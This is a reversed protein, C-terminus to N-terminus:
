STWALPVGEDYRRGAHEVFRELVGLNAVSAAQLSQWVANTDSRRIVFAASELTASAAQELPLVQQRGFLGTVTIGVGRQLSVKKGFALPAGGDFAPKLQAFLREDLSPVLQKVLEKYGKVNSTLTLKGGSKSFLWVANPVLEKPKMARVVLRAVLVGILGAGAGAALAPDVIQLQYSALDNWAIRKRGFRGSREIGHQYLRVRSASLIFLTLACLGLTLVGILVLWLAADQSQSAAAAGIAMFIVILFCLAVRVTWGARLEQVVAGLEPDHPPVQNMAVM